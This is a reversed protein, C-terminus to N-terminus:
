LALLDSVYAIEMSPLLTLFYISADLFSEADIRLNESHMAIRERSDIRLKTKFQLHCQM